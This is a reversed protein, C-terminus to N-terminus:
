IYIIIFLYNKRKEEGVGRCTITLYYLQYGHMLFGFVKKTLKAFLIGFLEFLDDLCEDGLSAYEDVVEFFGPVFEFVGLCFSSKPFIAIEVQSLGALLVDVRVTESGKAIDNRQLILEFFFFDVFRTELLLELGHFGTRVAILFCKFYVIGESPCFFLGFFWDFVCDSRGHDLLTNSPPILVLM